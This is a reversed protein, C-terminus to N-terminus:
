RVERWCIMRVETRESSEDRGSRVGARRKARSRRTSAGACEACGSAKPASSWCATRIACRIEMGMTWMMRSGSSSTHRRGSSAEPCCGASAARPRVPALDSPGAWGSPRRQQRGSARSDVARSRPDYWRFPRPASAGDRFDAAATAAAAGPVTQWASCRVSTASQGNSAADAAYLAELGDRHNASILTETAVLM